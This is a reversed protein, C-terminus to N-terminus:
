AVPFIQQDLLQNLVSLLIDPAIEIIIKVADSTITHGSGPTKNFKQVTQLLEKESFPTTHERTKHRAFTNNKSQFFTEIIETRQEKPPNYPAPM